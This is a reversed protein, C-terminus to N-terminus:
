ASSCSRSASAPSTRAAARVRQDRAALDRRGPQPAGPPLRLRGPGAGLRGADGADVGALGARPGPRAPLDAPVDRGRGAGDRQRRPAAVDDDPRGPAPVERGRAGRVRRGAPQRPLDLALRHRARRRRDAPRGGRPRARGRPRVRPRPRGVGQGDRRARVARPDDRVGAPGDRRRRRGPRRPRRDPVRDLPRRACALSAVTFGGAAILLVRKRGFMDGLRGGTLLGIAM